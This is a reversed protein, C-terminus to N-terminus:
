SQPSSGPGLTGNSGFAPQASSASGQNGASSGSSGSSGTSHIPESTPTPTQVPPPEPSSAASGDSVTSRSASVTAAGKAAVTTAVSPRSPTHGTARHSHTASRSRRDSPNTKAALLIHLPRPRDLTWGSARATPQPRSSHRPAPSGGAFLAGPTPIVGLFTVGALTVAAIAGAAAAGSLTLRPSPRAPLTSALRRAASDPARTFKAADPRHAAATASWSSSGLAAAPENGDSSHDDASTIPQLERDGELFLNSSESHSPLDGPLSGPSHDHLSSAPAPSQTRVFSPAPANECDMPNASSVAAHHESNAARDLGPDDSERRVAWPGYAVNDSESDRPKHGGM